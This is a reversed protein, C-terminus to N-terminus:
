EWRRVRCWVGEWEKEVEEGRKWEGWWNSKALIPQRGFWPRIWHIKEVSCCGSCHGEIEEEDMGTTSPLLGNKLDRALLWMRCSLRMVHQLVTNGNHLNEELSATLMLNVGGSQGPNCHNCCAPVSFYGQALISATGRQPWIVSPRM